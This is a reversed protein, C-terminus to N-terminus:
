ITSIMGLKQEMTLRDMGSFLVKRLSSFKSLEFCKLLRGILQNRSSDLNFQTQTPDLIRALHQPYLTGGLELASSFLNLKSM